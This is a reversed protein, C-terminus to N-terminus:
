KPQQARFQKRVSAPVYLGMSQLMVKSDKLGYRRADMQESFLSSGEFPLDQITHQVEQPLGSSQLWSIRHMTVMAM